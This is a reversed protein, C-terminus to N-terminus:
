DKLSDLRKRGRRVRGGANYYLPPIAEATFYCQANCSATRQGIPGNFGSGADTTCPNLGGECKASVIDDRRRTWVANGMCQSRRNPPDAEFVASQDDTGRGCRTRVYECGQHRGWHMCGAASYNSLYFGLDEM